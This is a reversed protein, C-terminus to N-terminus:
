CLFQTLTQEEWAPPRQGPCDTSVGLSSNFINPWDEPGGPWLTVDISGLFPIIEGIASPLSDAQLPVSTSTHYSFRSWLQDRDNTPTKPMSQAQCFLHSRLTTGLQKSKFSTLLIASLHQPKQDKLHIENSVEIGPHSDRHMM